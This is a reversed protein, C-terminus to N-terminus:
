IKSDNKILINSSFCISVIKICCNKKRKIECVVVKGLAVNHINLYYGVAICTM